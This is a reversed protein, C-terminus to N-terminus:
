GRHETSARYMAHWAAGVLAAERIRAAAVLGFVEPWGPSAQDMGSRLPPNIVDWALAISGGVVLMSAGYEVARPAVVQGLVQLSEDVARTADHDGSRARAVIERVDLQGAARDGALVAYRARIARRSVSDELPHGDVQVLDLRGDPPVGPGQRRALGDVLFASGVGTGLTVAITRHHGQTAGAAWEGIAFAEADNVFAIHGTGGTLERRLVDGLDIGRLADFKGVGHFDAVGRAYDFPGPIAVGWLLGDDPRLSKGANVMTAILADALGHPDIPRRVATEIRVQWLGTEVVAATVHTGGIELVPISGM